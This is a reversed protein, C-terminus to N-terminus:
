GNFKNTDMGRFGCDRIIFLAGANPQKNLEDDNLGVKASTIYLDALKEGGFTCSTVKSVPLLISHLLKGTYPDYRCIRWGNWIAIWLMGDQDVTMGDMHGEKPDIRIIIRRNKIVGSLGDYDYAVVAHTSTDIYYFLKNDPSWGMGNSITVGQIKLNTEYNSNLTYVHGCEITEDMDMSGVWFRGFSDCKGDNFRNNPLHKEPSSIFKRTKNKEDIFAFGNEFAGLIGGQRRLVIAGIKDGFDLTLTKNEGSVYRHIQGNLIDIWLISNNSSDWVPCEGLLSIHPSVLELKQQYNSKM